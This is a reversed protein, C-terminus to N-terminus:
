KKFTVLYRVTVQIRFDSDPSYNSTSHEYANHRLKIGRLQYRFASLQSNNFTSKDDKKFRLGYVIFKSSYTRHFDSLYSSPNGEKGVQMKEPMDLLVSKETSRNNDKQFHIVTNYNGNITIPEPFVGVWEYQNPIHYGQPCVDKAQSKMNIEAHSFHKGEDCANSEGITKLDSLDYQVFYEIPMKIRKVSEKNNVSQTTKASQVSATERNQADIRLIYLLIFCFLIKKKM